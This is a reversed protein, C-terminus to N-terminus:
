EAIGKLVDALGEVFSFSNILQKQHNSFPFLNTKTQYGGGGAFCGYM